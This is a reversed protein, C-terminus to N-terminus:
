AKLKFGAAYAKPNSGDWTVGDMLKSARM